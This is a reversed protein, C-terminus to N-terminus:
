IYFLFNLSSYDPKTTCFIPWFLLSTKLYVTQFLTDILFSFIKRANYIWSFLWLLPNTYNQGLCIYFFCIVTFINCKAKKQFPGWDPILVHPFSHMLSQFYCVKKQILCFGKSWKLPKSKQNTIRKTPVKKQVSFSRNEKLMANDDLVNWSSTQINVQLILSLISFLLLLAFISSLGGKWSKWEKM